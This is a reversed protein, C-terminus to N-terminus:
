CFLNDLVYQHCNVKRVRVRLHLRCYLQRKAAGAVTDIKVGKDSGSQWRTYLNLLSDRATALLTKEQWALFGRAGDPHQQLTAASPAM